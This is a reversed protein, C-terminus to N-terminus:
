PWTPCKQHWWAPPTTTIDWSPTSCSPDNDCGRLTYHITYRCPEGPASSIVFQKGSAVGADDGPIYPFDVCASQRGTLDPLNTPAEHDTTADGSDNVTCALQTLDAPAQLPITVVTDNLNDTSCPQGEMPLYGAALEGVLALSIGGDAQFFGGDAQAFGGASLISFGVPPDPCGNRPYFAAKPDFKAELYAVRQDPLTMSIFSAGYVLDAPGAPGGDDYTPAQTPPGRRRFRPPTRLDLSGNNNHDDYVILSGYAVRGNLDGVMVDAAPLTDLAFTATTGPQLTTDAGVRNPVFGFSDPCGAAIVAAAEPSEPPLACFPEPQWQRGWVLAVRFNPTDGAPTFQAPDGTTQVQIKELHTVTGGLGVAKSCGLPLLLSAALAFRGAFHKLAAM